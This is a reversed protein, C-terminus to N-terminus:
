RNIKYMLSRWNGADHANKFGFSKLINKANASRVGSSCCTIIPTKRDLFQYINADLQEVPINISGIIHGLKYEHRTRVDIILAGQIVLEKYNVSARFKLLKKIIDIM